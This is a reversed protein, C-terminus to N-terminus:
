PRTRRGDQDQLWDLASKLENLKAGLESIKQERTQGEQTEAKASLGDNISTFKLKRMIELFAYGRPGPMLGEFAVM